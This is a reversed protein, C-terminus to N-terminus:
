RFNTKGGHLEVSEDYSAKIPVALKEQDYLSFKTYMVNNSLVYFTIHALFFVFYSRKGFGNKFFTDSLMGKLM